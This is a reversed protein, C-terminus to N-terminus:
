AGNGFVPCGAPFLVWEQAEFVALVKKGIAVVGAVFVLSKVEAKEGLQAWSMAESWEGDFVWQVYRTEDTLM